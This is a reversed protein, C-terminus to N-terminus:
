NCKETYDMSHNTQKIMTQVKCKLITLIVVTADLSWSTENDYSVKATSLDFLITVVDGETPLMSMMRYRDDAAWM